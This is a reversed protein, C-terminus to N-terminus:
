LNFFRATTQLGLGTINGSPSGSTVTYEYGIFFLDGLSLSITNTATNTALRNAIANFSLTGLATKLFNFTTHSASPTYQYLNIKVAGGTGLAIIAASTLSSVAINYWSVRSWDSTARQLNTILGFSNSIPFASVSTGAGTGVETGSFTGAGRNDM